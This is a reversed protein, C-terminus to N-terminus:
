DSSFYLHSGASALKMVIWSAWTPSLKRNAGQVSRSGESWTKTPTWPTTIQPYARRGWGGSLPNLYNLKRTDKWCQVSANETMTSYLYLQSHRYLLVNCSIKGRQHTALVKFILKRAREHFLMRSETSIKTSSDCQDENVLKDSRISSILTIWCIGM